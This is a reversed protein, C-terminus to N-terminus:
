LSVDKELVASVLSPRGMEYLRVGMVEGITDVLRAKLEEGDPHGNMTTVADRELYELARTLVLVVMEAQDKQQEDTLGQKLVLDYAKLNPLILTRVGASGAIGQLGLISGYHTGFPKHSDLFAKLCSRAIRPKLTTASQGYRKAISTLLSAALDRLAYHGGAGDTTTNGLYKGILCTLVSPILSAVYPAIYLSPNDLLAALLQMMQNLVFLNKLNHTVKEAVFQIFYPM